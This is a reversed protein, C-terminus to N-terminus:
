SRPLHGRWLRASSPQPKSPCPSSSGECVRGKRKQAADEAEQATATDTPGTLRERLVKRAAKPRTIYRLHAVTQGVEAARGEASRKESFTKVSHRFSFLAMIGTTQLPTSLFKTKIRQAGEVGKSM